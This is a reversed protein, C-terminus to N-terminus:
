EIKAELAARLRAEYDNYKQENHSTHWQAEQCDITREIEIWVGRFDRLELIEPKKDM